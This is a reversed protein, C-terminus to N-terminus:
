NTTNLKPRWKMFPREFLAFFVFCSALVIPAAIMLHLTYTSVQNTTTLWKGAIRSTASLIPVHYLYFTYCIGGISVPIWHRLFAVHYKGNLATLCFALLLLPSIITSGPISRNWFLVPALILLVFVAALDNKFKLVRLKSWENLWLDALLFGSLFHPLQAPLFTHPMLRFCSGLGIMVALIIGRRLTASRVSFIKALLPMVIYFQAEVELSWTVSNIPSSTGYFIWHTYTCTSLYHPFLDIFEEQLLLIRLALLLSINIILPPELRTLRRLYYSRLSVPKGNQMHHKAFPLALIFGSIVFFLSVGYVGGELIRSMTSHEASEMGPHHSCVGHNLHLLFVSALAFFRLGDIEPIFDGRSTVRQFPRMWSPAKALTDSSSM